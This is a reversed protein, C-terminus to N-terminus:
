NGDVSSTNSLKLAKNGVKSAKTEWSDRDWIEMREGLGLFVVEKKLQAFRALSEPIVIRGQFDPTVEYASGLIFREKDLNTTTIDQNTVRLRTLLAEWHDKAVLVLCAEYLRSIIVTDGLEKLFRSPIAIRRGSGFKASFQGLLM